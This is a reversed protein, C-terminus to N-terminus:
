NAEGSRLISDVGYYTRVCHNWSDDFIAFGLVTDGLNYSLEPVVITKSGRDRQRVIELHREDWEHAFRALKPLLQSHGVFIGIAVAFVVILCLSKYATKWKGKSQAFLAARQILIGLCAGWVLGSAVHLSNASALIREEVFGHAFLAVAVVMGYSCLTLLSAFFPLLVLRRSSADSDFPKLQWSVICILVLASAFLYTAARYHISRVQTLAFLALAALLIVSIYVQWGSARDRLAIGIKERYALLMIFAAIQVINLCVVAFYAFSFRDVVQPSDSTHMWLVPIFLLQVCVAMLIPSTLIKRSGAVELTKQPRYVYLTVFLAACLLLMFGAFAEQHGIYKFSAEFARILLEPLTRVPTAIEAFMKSDLRAALGPATIQVIASIATGVWGAGILILYPRRATKAVFLMIGVLLGTLFTGQFVLYMESFGANVFCIAVGAGAAAITWRRGSNLSAFQLAMALYLVLIALPFTYRLSISLVYFSQLSYFANIAAAVMLGSLALAIVLRNQKVGLERLVLIALFSLGIFWVVVTTVALVSPFAEALPALLGHFFYDSYAGNWIQRQYLVAGLAGYQEGRAIHCYDDSIFRSFQGMYAFLLAPVLALLALFWAMVQERRM